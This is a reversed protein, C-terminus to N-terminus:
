GADRERVWGCGKRAQADLSAEGSADWSTRRSRHEEEELELAAAAADEAAKAAVAAARVDAEAQLRRCVALGEAMRNALKGLNRHHMASIPLVLSAGPTSPALVSALEGQSVRHAVASRLEALRQSAADGDAKNAVLLCPRSTLGPM